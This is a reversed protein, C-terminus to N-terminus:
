AALGDESGVLVVYKGALVKTLFASQDRRRKRFEEATYITPSIPRGLRREAPALCAFAEEQTLDDSVILVDVDSSSTDGGKAVSGFLIAFRVRGAIRELAKRLEAAVGITKEVIGRLEEFIPAERNAKVYKRGAVAEVTVLGSEGLRAVERQVAGSGADALRILESLMFARDPQGFVLGLVRKQTESFLADAMGHRLSGRRRRRKSAGASATATKGMNPIM